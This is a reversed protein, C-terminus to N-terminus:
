MSYGRFEDKIKVPTDDTKHRAEWGAIAKRWSAMKNKGVKWGNSGYFNVFKDPCVHRYGKEKIYEAVQDRSPPSFRKGERKPEPEPEPEPQCEMHMADANSKCQTQMANAHPKEWRKRAAKQRKGIKDKYSTIEAEIRPQHYMGDNGLEFFEQLVRAICMCHLRMCILRAIEEVSEPLGIEHLYYYDLMRRYALDELEDLHKTHAHYDGIHFPYYNM